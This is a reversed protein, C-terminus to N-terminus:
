GFTMLLMTDQVYIRRLPTEITIGYPGYEIAENMMLVMEIGYWIFIEGAVQTIGKVAFKAGCNVVMNADGTPHDTFFM